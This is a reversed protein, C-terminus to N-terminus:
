KLGRTNKERWNRKEKLDMRAFYEEELESPKKPM